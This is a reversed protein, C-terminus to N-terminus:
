DLKLYEDPISEHIMNLIEERTWTRYTGSTTYPIGHQAILEDTYDKYAYLRLNSLNADEYHTIVPMAKVDQVTVGGAGDVVLNFDVVEGILNFNDTQASIFNGLSYFVFGQTGDDRTVYEMTQAVHTHTGIIVDAGWNIIKQAREKVDDRVIYTDENGWHCSVVVVDAIEKAQQIQQQILDEQETRPIEIDSNEPLSYGNLNEVYGLFAVTKGNVEKTRIQQMDMYDRYTGYVVIDDHEKKKQDWYNLCSALGGEGKDLLHNNSLTIVNFGLDLVADGLEVPSNFNFNSGSIEYDGNCILTEQNIINLDGASVMDKVNEYCYAFNYNEGNQAHAQATEYVCRQVLDDGVAVVRITTDGSSGADANSDDSAPVSEGSGDTSASLDANAPVAASSEEISKTGCGALLGLLLPVLILQKPAIWKM